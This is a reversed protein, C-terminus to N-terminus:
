GIASKKMQLYHIIDVYTLERIPRSRLVELLSETFYGGEDGEVAKEQESCAALLVHTFPGLILNGSFLRNLLSRDVDEPLAYTQGLRM